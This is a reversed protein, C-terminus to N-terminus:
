RARLPARRRADPPKPSAGRRALLEALDGLEAAFATLDRRAEAASRRRRQVEFLAVGTGVLAFGGIGGSVAFAVQTPIVVTASVGVWAITIAVFGAAVFGVALAITRDVSSVATRM